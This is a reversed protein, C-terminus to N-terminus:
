RLRRYRRFTYAHPNLWDVSRRDVSTELWDEADFEPFFADGEFEAEITTLILSDAHPLFQRYIEEGGIVMVDTGPFRERCLALAQEVTSATAFRTDPSLLMGGFIAESYLKDQLAEDRTLVLNNRRPLPKKISEYTKRGMLVTKGLTQTKFHILDAPLHWPLEGQNGIVRNRGMAAILSIRM